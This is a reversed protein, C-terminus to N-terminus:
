MWSCISFITLFVILSFSSLVSFIVLFILSINDKGAAAAAYPNTLAIGSANKIKEIEEMRKRVVPKITNLFELAHRKGQNTRLMSLTADLAGEQVFSKRLSSYKFCLLVLAIAVHGRLEENGNMCLTRLLVRFTASGGQQGGSVAIELWALYDSAFQKTTKKRAIEKEKKKEKKDFGRKKNNSDKSSDKRSKNSKKINTQKSNDNTKTATTTVTSEPPINNNYLISTSSLTYFTPVIGQEILPLLVEDDSTKVNSKGEPTTNSSNISSNNLSGSLRRALSPTSQLLTHRNRLGDLCQRASKAISGKKHEVLLMLQKLAGNNKSWVSRKIERANRGASGCASGLLKCAREQVRQRQDDLLIMCLQVGGCDYLEDCGNSGVKTTTRGCCTLLLDLLGCTMPETARRMSEQRANIATSTTTNGKVDPSPFSTVINRGDILTEIIRTLASVAGISILEREMMERSSEETGEVCNLLTSTARDRLLLPRGPRLLLLLSELAGMEIMENCLISDDCCLNGIILLIAGTLNENKQLPSITGILLRLGGLQRLIYSLYLTEHKDKCAATCHALTKAVHLAVIPDADTLHEILPGLGAHTSPVNENWDGHNTSEIKTSAKEIEVRPTTPETMSILAKCVNSDEGTCNSLVLAATQSLSTKRSGLLKLLPKIGGLRLLEKKSPTSPPFTTPLVKSTTEPLPAAKAKRPFIYPSSPPQRSEISKKTKKRQTKKSALLSGSQKQVASPKLQNPKMRRNMKSSNERSLTRQISKDFEIPVLM